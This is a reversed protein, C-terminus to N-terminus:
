SAHPRSLADARAEAQIAFALLAAGTVVVALQGEASLSRIAAYAFGGLVLTGGVVGSTMSLQCWTAASHTNYHKPVTFM